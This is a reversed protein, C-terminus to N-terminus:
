SETKKRILSATKSYSIQSIELVFLLKTEHSKTKPRRVNNLWVYLYVALCQILQKPTYHLLFFATMCNNHLLFSWVEHFIKNGHINFNPHM